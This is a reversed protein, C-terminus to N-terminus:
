MTNGPHLQRKAAIYADGAEQPTDYTGIYRPRGNVWIRAMWRKGNRYVGLMKSAANNRFAARINQSNIAQTAERLNALRNDSRNGNIHDIQGVPWRGHVHLWVLRHALYRSGGGGVGVHVYGDSRRGGAAGGAPARNGNAVRWTFVGTEPDYHLLERLRQATLDAKAM